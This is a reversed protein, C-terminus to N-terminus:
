KRCKLEKYLGEVFDYIRKETERLLERKKNEIRSASATLHHADAFRTGSYSILMKNTAIISAWEKKFIFNKALQLFFFSVLTNRKMQLCIGEKGNFFDHMEQSNVKHCFLDMDNVFNTICMVMSDPIPELLLTAVKAAPRIFRNDDEACQLIADATSIRKIEVKPMGKYRCDCNDNERVMNQDNCKEDIATRVLECYNGIPKLEFFKRVLKEKQKLIYKVISYAFKCSLDNPFDSFMEKEHEHIMFFLELYLEYDMHNVVICNIYSNHASAFDNNVMVELNDYNMSKIQEETMGYLKAIAVLLRKM